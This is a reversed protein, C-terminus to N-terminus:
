MKKSMLASKRYGMPKLWDCHEIGCCTIDAHAIGSLVRDAYRAFFCKEAIQRLRWFSIFLKRGGSSLFMQSHFLVLQRCSKYSRVILRSISRCKSLCWGSYKDVEDKSKRTKTEYVRRDSLSLLGSEWGMAFCSVKFYVNCTLCFIGNLEERDVAIVFPFNMTISRLGYVITSFRPNLPSRCKRSGFYSTYM